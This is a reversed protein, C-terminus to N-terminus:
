IKIHLVFVVCIYEGNEVKKLEIEYDKITINNYASCVSCMYCRIRKIVLAIVIFVIIHIFFYIMSKM